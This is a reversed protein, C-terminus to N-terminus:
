WGCALCAEELAALFLMAADHGVFEGNLAREIAAAIPAPLGHLQDAAPGDFLHGVAVEMLLTAAWHLDDLIWEPHQLNGEGDVWRRRLGLDGVKFVYGTSRRAYFVNDCYLDAHVAGLHHLQAVGRLVDRAIHRFWKSPDFGSEIFGTLTGDCREMVIWDDTELRFGNEAHVLNPHAESSNRQWGYTMGAVAEGLGLGAAVRKLACPLILQEAPDCMEGSFVNGAAGSKLYRRVIYLKAGYGPYLVRLPKPQSEQRHFALRPAAVIREISRGERAGITWTGLRLPLVM